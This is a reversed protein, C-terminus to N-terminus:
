NTLAHPPSDESIEQTHTKVEVEGILQGGVAQVVQKCFHVWMSAQAQKALGTKDYALDVLGDKSRSWSEIEFRLDRQNPHPKAQFHIEGMELHGKLTAFAFFSPRNAIVKVPGNWPGTIKIDFTDGVAFRDPRGKTKEFHALEPPSFQNLDARVQDMLAEPSLKADAIDARYRRHFADGVGEAITQIGWALPHYRKYRGMIPTHTPVKTSRSRTDRYRQQRFYRLWLVLVGVLSLALALWLMTKKM